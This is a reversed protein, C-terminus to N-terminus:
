RKDIMSSSSMERHTSEERKKTTEPGRNMRLSHHIDQCDIHRITITQRSHFEECEEVNSKQATEEKQCHVKRETPFRRAYVIRQNQEFANANRSLISSAPGFCRHPDAMARASRKVSSTPDERFDIPNQLQHVFLALEAQSTTSSSLLLRKLTQVSTGHEIIFPSLPSSSM